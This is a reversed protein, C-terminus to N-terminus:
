PRDKLNEGSLQTLTELLEKATMPQSNWPQPYLLGRVGLRRAEALTTESDDVLVDAKGLWRLFDCKSTDVKPLDPSLRDPVVSLTRIYGGFHRYLWDALLPMTSLPRSTLALHRFWQGHRAFWEVILPNPQMARAAETVRFEDMSALYEAKEIGLLRHPPNETIQDYRLSCGPHRPAWHLLFWSRMLDNLVDDVDWVITRM